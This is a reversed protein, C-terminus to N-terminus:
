PKPAVSPKNGFKERITVFVEIECATRLLLAVDDSRWSDHPNDSYKKALKRFYKAVDKLDVFTEEKHEILFDHQDRFATMFGNIAANFEMPSANILLTFILHYLPGYFESKDNPNPMTDVKKEFFLLISKNRGM